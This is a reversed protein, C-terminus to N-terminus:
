NRGLGAGLEACAVPHSPVRCGRRQTDRCAHRGWAAPMEPPCRGGAESRATTATTPPTGRSQRKKAGLPHPKPSACQPAPPGRTGQAQLVRVAHSSPASHAVRNTHADGGAGPRASVQVTWGTRLVNAGARSERGRQSRTAREEQERGGWVGGDRAESRTSEARPASHGPCGPIRAGRGTTIAGGPGGGASPEAGCIQPGPPRPPDPLAPKGRPQTRGALVRDRRM